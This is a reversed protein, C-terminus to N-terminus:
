DDQSLLRKLDRMGHLVRLVVIPSSEPDYLVVFRFVTHWRVREGTLHPRKFGIGPTEALTEFTAVFKGHVRLAREVGDREAIHRLIGALEEEATETLEYGGSAGLTM